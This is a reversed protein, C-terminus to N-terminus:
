VSRVPLLVWQVTSKTENTPANKVNWHWSKLFTQVNAVTNNWNQAPFNLLPVTVAQKSPQPITVSLWTM